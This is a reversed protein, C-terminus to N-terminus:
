KSLEAQVTANFDETIAPMVAEIAQQDTTWRGQHVKAQFQKSQVRPAYSANNGVIGTLSSATREVKTTWKDGLNESTLRRVKGDKDRWGSGRKYRSGPIPPPYPKIKAEVRFVARQMAPQLFETVKELGNFKRVLEELGNIQIDAM